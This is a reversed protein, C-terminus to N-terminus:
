ASLRVPIGREHIYRACTNPTWDTFQFLAGAAVGHAGANIAEIMHEPHGCGGCAVIPVPVSRACQEILSCDYGSLTGDCHINNLLIEGAGHDVAEKVWEVPDLGTDKKGANSYVRDGKVDVSVVVSQSGLKRSATKILSPTEIAATNIAVKDAGASLLDMMDPVSTVGGGVTVPMFLESTYRYVMDIDPGRGERTASVDLIVLEDVGRIQHVSVAQIINGTRRWSDFGVGKVMEHGRHLLVPIIRTKLAM